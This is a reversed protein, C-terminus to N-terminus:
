NSTPTLNFCTDTNFIILIGKLSPDKQSGSLKNKMQNVTEVIKEEFSPQFEVYKMQM